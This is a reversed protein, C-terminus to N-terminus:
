RMRDLHTMADPYYSLALTFSAGVPVVRKLFTEGKGQYYSM